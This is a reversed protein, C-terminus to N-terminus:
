RAEFPSSIRLTTGGPASVVQFDAGIESAADRVSRLGLGASHAGADFGQGDDRVTLVIRDAITELTMEVHSARSHRAINSLAEQATRYLLIKVELDPEIELPALQLRAAFHQMGASSWLRRLAEELTLRQWDPPYLRRSIGRVQELAQESLEGIRELASQVAEAPNQIQSVVTELQMRIAALMQGVSTHLERGLRQREREVQRLAPPARMARQAARAQRITEIKRELQELRFYHDLLKDAIRVPAEETESESQAALLLTEPTVYAPWIRFSEGARLREALARELPAEGLVTHAQRSMWVVRGDRDCEILLPHTLGGGSNRLEIM